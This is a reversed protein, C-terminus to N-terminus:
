FLFFTKKLESSNYFKRGSAEMESIWSVDAGKAFSSNTNQQGIFQDSSKSCATICLILFVLVYKQHKSTINILAIM